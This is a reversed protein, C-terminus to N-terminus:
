CGLPNVFGVFFGRRNIDFLKDKGCSSGFSYFIIKMEEWRMRHKICFSTFVKRSFRVSNLDLRTTDLVQISIYEICFSMSVSIIDQGNFKYNATLVRSAAALM